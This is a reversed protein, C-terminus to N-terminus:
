GWLMRATTISPTAGVDSCRGSSASADESASNREDKAAQSALAAHALAVGLTKAVNSANSASSRACGRLTLIVWGAVPLGMLPTTDSRVSTVRIQGISYMGSPARMTGLKISWAACPLKAGSAAVRVAAAIPSPSMAM